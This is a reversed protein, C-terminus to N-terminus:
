GYVNRFRNMTDPAMDKFGRRPHTSWEVPVSLSVSRRYDSYSPLGHDRGRQINLASLDLGNSETTQFMHNRLDVGMHRDCVESPDTLAGRQFSTELSLHLGSRWFVDKLRVNKSTPAYNKDLISQEDRIMSHGFRMSATAFSNALTPNVSANYGTYYGVSLPWLNYKTMAEPGVTIPLYERYTVQQMLAIVIKRAEEFIKDSRVNDPLSAFRPFEALRKAIRNHERYWIVISSVLGPSESMKEDGTFQM